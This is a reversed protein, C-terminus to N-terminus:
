SGESGSPAYITLVGFKKLKPHDFTAWLGRQSQLMGSDILFGSMTPGIAMLLGGKGSYSHPNREAVAVELAPAVLFTEERWIKIPLM